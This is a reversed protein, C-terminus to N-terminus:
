GLLFVTGNRRYAIGQNRTLALSHHAVKVIM